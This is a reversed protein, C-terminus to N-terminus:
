AVIGIGLSAMTRYDVIVEGSGINAISIFLGTRCRKVFAAMYGNLGLASADYTVSPVVRKTPDAGDLANFIGVVPDNVGDVGVLLSILVCDGTFILTSATIRSSEARILRM